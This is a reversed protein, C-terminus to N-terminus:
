TIAMTGGTTAALGDGAGVGGTIRKIQGKLAWGQAGGNQTVDVRFKTGKPMASSAASFAATFLAGTVGATHTFTGSAFLSQWTAGDDISRLVDFKLDTTPATKCDSSLEVLTGAHHLVPRHAAIDTGDPVAECGGLFFQIYEAQVDGGGGSGGASSGGGALDRFWRFATKTLSGYIATVGYRFQWSSSAVTGMSTLNVGQVLYTDQQAAWGDILIAQQQGPQLNKAEAELYDSTQYEAKLPIDKRSALIADAMAQADSSSLLGDTEFFREYRGSSGEKAARAAIEATAEATFYSVAIGQYAVTLTDATSLPVGDPDQRIETSGQTWYWDKGTDTGSIGVTQATGNVSITPTASVPYALTFSTEVGDGTFEETQTDRITQASKVVVVNCYDEDTETVSLEAINSAGSPVDFPALSNEPLLSHFVKEGDIWFQKGTIKHLETMAGAVTDYTVKFSAVDVPDDLSTTVGEDTMSTSFIDEIIANDTTATWEKPAIVRRELIYNYDTAQVTCSLLSSNSDPKDRKVSRIVGGFVTVIYDYAADITDVGTLPPDGPEQYLIGTTYDIYWQQGTDVGYEGVTQPLFNNFVISTISAPVQPLTFQQTSGDGTIEYSVGHTQTIVLTQGVSPYWTGLDADLVAGTVPTGGADQYLNRTGVEWYWDKGTDLGYIGVTKAV